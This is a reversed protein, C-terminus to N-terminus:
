SNSFMQQLERWLEKKKQNESNIASLKDALLIQQEKFFTCKYFPLKIHLGMKSADIGFIIVKKFSLEKTLTAWKPFEAANIDMVWVDETLNTNVAQLIKALFSRLEPNSYETCLILVGEKNEGETKPLARDLDSTSYLKSNFFILDFSM